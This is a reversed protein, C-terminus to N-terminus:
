SSAIKGQHILSQFWYTGCRPCIGIESWEQLKERIFLPNFGRRMKKVQKIADKKEQLKERIFLPNFSSQCSKQGADRLYAQLKERIFLPNFSFCKSPNTEHNTEKLSAIKGQHILSQFELRLDKSLHYPKIKSAIKGQHILSQFADEDRRLFGPGDGGGQLKERIFLPNFCM